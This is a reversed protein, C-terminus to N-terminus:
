RVSEKRVLFADPDQAAFHSLIAEVIPGAANAGHLSTREVVAVFAIRPADFPAFGALWGNHIDPDNEKGIEATGTKFAANFRELHSNTDHSATGGPAHGARWLGERIAPITRPNSLVLPTPKSQTALYPTPVSTGGVAIAAYSRLVQLPTARVYRQGIAYHCKQGTLRIEGPPTLLGREIRSRPLDIGSAEGYGLSRAWPEMLEAGLHQSGLYYFYVNCSYQLAQALNVERDSTHGDGSCHLSKELEFAHTCVYGRNEDYPGEWPQASEMAAMAVVIKFVSGPFIPLASPRDILRSSVQGKWKDDLSKYYGEDKIRNPDVGPFGVSALIAGSPIEMVAASGATGSGLKEIAEELAQYLRVQLSADITTRVDDGNKPLVESVIENELVQGKRDRRLIARGHLGRLTEDYQSELGGQGILDTRGFLDKRCTEFDSEQEKSKKSGLLKGEADLKKEADENEVLRKIWGTITGAAEKLPYERRAGDICEIGPYSAPHYEIETVVSLPVDSVLLWTQARYRRREEREKQALKEASVNEIDRGIDRQVRTEIRKLADEVLTSLDPAARGENASRLRRALRELTIQMRLARFPQFWVGYTRSEADLRTEFVPATEFYRSLWSWRKSLSNATSADVGSALLLWTPRDELDDREVEDSALIRDLGALEAIQREVEAKKLFEANPDLVAILASLPEDCPNLVSYRFHLQYVPRNRALVTGDRALIRGRQPSTYSVTRQEALKRYVAVHQPVLQLWCLRALIGLFPLLLCLTLLILRRRVM